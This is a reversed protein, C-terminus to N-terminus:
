SSGSPNFDTEVGDEDFSNRAVIAKFTGKPITWKQTVVDWISVDYNSLQFEVTETDGVDVTVRAFDRLVRPEGADKPFALYLQPV